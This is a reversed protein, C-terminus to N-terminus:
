SKFDTWTKNIEKVVSLTADSGGGGGLLEAREITIEFGMMCM